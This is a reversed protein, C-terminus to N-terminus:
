RLARAPFQVSSAEPDAVVGRNWMQTGSCIQIRSHQWLEDRLLNHIDGVRQSVTHIDDHFAFLCEGAGLHSQVSRLAQHQGQM